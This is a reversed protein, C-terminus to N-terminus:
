ARVRDIFTTFTALAAALHDKTAQDTLTGEADFKGHADSVYTEPQGLVYANLYLLSQKLQYQALATGTGAITAGLVYVPKGGWASDGYPRSTWDVLNKLVGPVGRNYEPTAIIIGDAARIKEKLATVVEPFAAEADQNYLPIDSYDVLKISTGEPALEVLANLLHTNFSAARHSGSIALLNPM